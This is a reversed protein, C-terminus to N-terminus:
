VPMMHRGIWSTLNKPWPVSKSAPTQAAISAAHRPSPSCLFHPPHIQTKWPWAGQLCIHHFRTWVATSMHHNGQPCMTQIAYLSDWPRSIYKHNSDPWLTQRRWTYKMCESLPEKYWYGWAPRRPKKCMYRLCARKVHITNDEQLHIHPLIKANPEGCHGFIEIVYTNVITNTCYWWVSGQWTSGTIRQQLRTFCFLNFSTSEFWSRWDVEDTNMTGGSLGALCQLGVEYCFWTLDLLSCASWAAQLWCYQTDVMM